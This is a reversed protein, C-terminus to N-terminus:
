QNAPFNLFRDPNASCSYLTVISPASTARSPLMKQGMSSVRATLRAAFEAGQLRRSEKCSSNFLSGIDDMPCFISGDRAVEAGDITV